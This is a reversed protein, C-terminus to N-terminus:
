VGINYPEQAPHLDFQFWPLFIKIIHWRGRLYFSFIPISRIGFIPKPSDRPEGWYNGDWINKIRCRRFTPDKKNQYINNNSITNFITYFGSLYISRTNDIIANKEIQNNEGSSLYVGNFNSRITNYSITNNECYNWIAIGADDCNELLNYSVQNQQVNVLLIGRTCDRMVNYSIINDYCYNWLAVGSEKMNQFINHSIINNDTHFLEIGHYSNQFVNHSVTTKIVWGNTKIGGSSQNIIQNNIILNDKIIRFDGYLDIGFNNRTIINNSITNNSTYIKIGVGRGNQITFNSVSVSDNKITIPRKSRTDNGDIITTNKDEGILNISHNITLFEVYLGAYVYVTDGDSADNIAAQITSYNGTGNGGVYLTNGDFSVTSSKEVVNTGASPIVSVSVFLLIVSIVVGKKISNNM